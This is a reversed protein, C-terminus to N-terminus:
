KLKANEPDAFDVFCHRAEGDVVYKVLYKLNSGDNYVKLTYVGGKDVQGYVIRCLFSNAPFEGEPNNRLRVKKDSLEEAIEIDEFSEKEANYLGYREETLNMRRNPAFVTMIRKKADLERISTVARGPHIAEVSQIGKLKGKLTLLTEVRNRSESPILFVDASPMREDMKEYDLEIIKPMYGYVDVQMLGNDRGINIFVYTGEGRSEPVLRNGDKEFRINREDVSRGTIADKVNVLLDLRARIMGGEM